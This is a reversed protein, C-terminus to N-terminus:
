KRNNKRKKKKPKKKGCNSGEAVREKGEMANSEVNEEAVFELVAKLIGVGDRGGETEKDM